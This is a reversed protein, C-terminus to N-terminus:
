SPASRRRNVADFTPSNPHGGPISAFRRKRSVHAERVGLLPISANHFEPNHLHFIKSFGGAFRSNQVSTVGHALSEIFQSFKGSSKDPAFVLVRPSKKPFTDRSFPGFKGIGPWAYSTRKKKAPDFCYESMGVDVVTKYNGENAPTIRGLVKCDISPTISIPSNRTLVNGM